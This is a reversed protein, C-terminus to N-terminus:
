KQEVLSKAEAIQEAIAKGLESEPPTKQMLKQWYTIAQQYNKAEFAASGALQLAKPNEPDLKLAKQLLESPQGLLSKGNAMGLAFAYQALLDANDPKLAAAKAYAKSADAYRELMTYSKGLMVWGDADDPNQELRKALAAVNGAVRQQESSQQATSPQEAPRSAAVPVGKIASQNGVQLYLLVAVLPIGLTLSYVL